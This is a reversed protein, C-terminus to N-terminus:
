SHSRISAYKRNVGPNGARVVNHELRLLDQRLIFPVYVQVAGDLLAARVLLGEKTKSFRSYENQDVKDRLDQCPHDEKQTALMRALTVPQEKEPERYSPAVWGRSADSLVLCPIEEPIISRDPALTPLRSLADACHHERGPRTCVKYMFESLRLRWRTVRGQASDINLLWRFSSHDTRLLFEQGELYPRLLFCAWVVALCERDTTSYYQEAPILGRSYYGVPLISKDPQNQLLTCGVQVACADTYLNFLSGCRPLALIPTWTLREKL